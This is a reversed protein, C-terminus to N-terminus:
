KGVSFGVLRKGEGPQFTLACIADFPVVARRVTTAYHYNVAVWTDGVAHVDDIKIIVGDRLMLEVDAPRGGGHEQSYAEAQQRWETEFFARTFM